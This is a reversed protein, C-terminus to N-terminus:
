GRLNGPLREAMWQVEEEVTLNAPLETFGIEAQKLTARLAADVRLWFDEERIRLASLDANRFVDVGSRIDHKSSLYYVADYIKAYSRCFTLSASMLEKEFPTCSPARVSWYALASVVTRDCIVLDYDRATTLEEAVQTALAHVEAWTDIETLGGLASLFYPSRRVVETVCAARYGMANAYGAVAYALTTKGSGHAGELGVLACKNVGMAYDEPNSFTSGLIMFM